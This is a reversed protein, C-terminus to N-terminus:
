EVLIKKVMTGKETELQLFYVGAPLCSVDIENERFHTLIKLTTGALNKLTLTHIKLGNPIEFKVISSAPNPYFNINLEFYNKLINLPANFTQVYAVSSDIGYPCNPLITDITHLVLTKVGSAINISHEILTDYPIVQMTKGCPHFYVAMFISEAEQSYHVSSIAKNNYRSHGNPFAADFLYGEMYTSLVGNNYRVNLSDVTQASVVNTILFLLITIIKMIKFKLLTKLLLVEYNDRM